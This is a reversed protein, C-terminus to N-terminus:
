ALPPSTEPVADLAAAPLVALGPDPDSGDRIAQGAEVAAVAFIMAVTAIIVGRVGEMEWGVLTAVVLLLSRVAVSRREIRQQVYVVDLAQLVLSLLIIPGILDPWRFAGALAFVVGGLFLGVCPYLSLFAVAVGLV